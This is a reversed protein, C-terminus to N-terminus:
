CDDLLWNVRATLKEFSELADAVRALLTRPVVVEEVNQSSLVRIIESLSAELSM